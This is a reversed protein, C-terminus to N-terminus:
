QGLLPVSTVVCGQSTTLVCLGGCVPGQLLVVRALLPRLAVPSEPGVVTRM